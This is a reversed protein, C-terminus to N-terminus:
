GGPRGTKLWAKAEAKMRKNQNKTKNTRKAYDTMRPKAVKAGLDYVSSKDITVECSLGCSTTMKVTISGLAPREQAMAVDHPFSAAKTWSRTKKRKSKRVDMTMRAGNDWAEEKEEVSSKENTFKIRGTTKRPFSWHRRLPSDGSRINPTEFSITLPFM